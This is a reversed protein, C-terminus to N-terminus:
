KDKKVAAPTRKFSSFFTEVDPSKMQEKTGVAIVRFIQVGTGLLRYRALGQPTQILYEKGAMTGLKVSEEKVLKGKVEELFLDRFFDQRVKPAAKTLKPPLIIQGAALVLGDKRDCVTRFFRIQGFMPSVLSDQSDDIKGDAPLWVAYAQKKYGGKVEKWGQPPKKEDAAVVLPVCVLLLLISKRLM